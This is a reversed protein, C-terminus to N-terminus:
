DEQDEYGLINLAKAKYGQQNAYHVLAEERGHTVWVEQPNIERITQILEFWDAHDSIILPLEIGKQKARARIQMWGSAMSIVVHAFRQSWKDHLASPPCLVICGKSSHSDLTSAPQLDGLDIGMKQYFDCLNKLAGHLYIPKTYGRMRITKILRQCKGLAYVGVLHCRNPFIDISSLLKNIELEIPPHKFVPLGFTAETVFVDCPEVVFSDCTPDFVRKYDGSVNLRFGGYEIMIQSSGFIHGAPLLYLEVDRVAIKEFYNLPVFKKACDEGYRVRMIGITGHHAMVQKHDSCAHDGHGHTIVANDVPYVPDIYFQGPICYLGEKKITLWQRPHSM